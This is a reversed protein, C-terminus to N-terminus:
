RFRLARRAAKRRLLRCGLAPTRGAPRLRAFRRKREPLPNRNEEPSGGPVGSRARRHQAMRDELVLDAFDRYGLLNAKERRLELIRRIIPRNDHKDAIARNVYAEYVQRRTNADDLYTMLAVYSPAQLTFRWAAQDLNKSAAGARAMAIASEPLGALKKPDTVVLEFENTSDLVNESFRITLRTLEVDIEAIRLKGAPDLEAGHRRFNDITKELFRQRAGSLTGAEETGAYTQVTKWLAENLPLSSYFASVEPQVANYAARLEPTTSVAELHRTIGMAYDLHETLDDLAIMTNAFSRPATESTIRDLRQRAERLLEAVAPEVHEARIQDFPIQFQIQLLPNVPISPNM